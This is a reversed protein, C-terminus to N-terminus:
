GSDRGERGDESGEAEWGISMADFSITKVNLVKCLKKKKERWKGRKESEDQGEEARGPPLKNM